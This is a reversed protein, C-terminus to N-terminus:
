PALQSLIASQGPPYKMSEPPPSELLQIDALQSVNPSTASFAAPAPNTYPMGLAEHAPSELAFPFQLLASLQAPRVAGPSVVSVRLVLDTVNLAALLVQPSEALLGITM